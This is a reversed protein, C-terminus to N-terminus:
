LPSISNRVKLYDAAEVSGTAVNILQREITDIAHSRDDYNRSFNMLLIHTATTEAGIKERLDGPVFALNSSEYENLVRNVERRNVLNFAYKQFYKSLDLLHHEYDTILEETTVSVFEQYGDYGEYNNDIKVTGAVVAIRINQNCSLYYLKSDIPFENESVKNHSLTTLGYSRSLNSCASLVLFSTILFAQLFKM